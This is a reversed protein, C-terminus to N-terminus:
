EGFGLLHVSVPLCQELHMMMALSTIPCPHACSM